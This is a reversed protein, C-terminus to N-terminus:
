NGNAEPSLANQPITNGLTKAEISQGTSVGREVVLDIAREVPIRVRGKSKDLWATEEMAKLEDQRLVQIDVKTTVNDQLVMRQTKGDFNMEAGVPKTRVPTTGSQAVQVPAMLRYILFYGITFAVIGFVAFGASWKLLQKKDIDRREYGMERLVDPDIPEPNHNTHM